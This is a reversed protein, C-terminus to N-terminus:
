CGCASGGSAAFVRRFTTAIESKLSGIDHGNLFDWGLWYLPLPSTTNTVAPHTSPFHADACIQGLEPGAVYDAVAMVDPHASRKVLMQVPSVLAGERPVSISIRQREKVKMAFFYPMVYVPPVTPSRSDIMKVMESPHLGRVVSRGLHRIGDMGFMRFFPLLVGNCFFTDDGRMVVSDAFSEDLLDGWSTPRARQGLLEDIAVVVLLNASLMTFDGKPDALGLAAMDPHIGRRNACHFLGKDRFASKFPRHYFSNIDASIIIDPLEDLSTLSDIRDYFSLEHNVNGEVLIRVKNPHTRNHAEIFADLARNFPMKM